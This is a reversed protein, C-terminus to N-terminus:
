QTTTTPEAANPHMAIVLRHTRGDLATGAHYKAVLGTVADTLEQAFAARDTASAFHIDGDMAYTGPINARDRAANLLRGVDRVLRSATALLWNPTARATRDPDPEAAGLVSPSIVYSAATAQMVRETCNGKRNEAVLRILGHHELARLHYNVKQRTLGVHTALTTASAPEALAALLRTRIPTLTAEAIAADDILAIEHQM